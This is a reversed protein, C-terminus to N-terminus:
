KGLLNYGPEYRLGKKRIQQTRRRHRGRRVFPFIKSAWYIPVFLKQLIWGVGSTLSVEDLVLFYKPHDELFGFQAMFDGISRARKSGDCAMSVRFKRPNLLDWSQWHRALWAVADEHFRQIDGETECSSYRTAVFHIRMLAEEERCLIESVAERLLQVLIRGDTLGWEPIDITGPCICLIAAYSPDRAADALYEANYLIYRQYAATLERPTYGLVGHVLVKGKGKKKRM